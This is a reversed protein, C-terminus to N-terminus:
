CPGWAALLKLFDTIGTSCDGDLDAAPGGWAALMYLFDLIGVVRDGDFDPPCLPVFVFDSLVVEVEQGDGPANGGILWLNVHVRPAEPRPIDPGTYTWTEILDGPDPEDAHGTWSRCVVADPRWDFVHTTPSEPGDTTLEFRHRNGDRWYPQFVFQAPPGNPETWRSFEIDFENNANWWNDPRWCPQYEWVFLGFVVNPDLDDLDAEVKFRYEGYGLAEEAAVEAAYWVGDVQTTRLRLKGDGDVRANDRSDSFHNPGPGFFGPGKVRWTRGAFLLTTEGFDTWQLDDWGPPETRHIDVLDFIATGTELAPSQLFGVLFRATATGGPAPGTEFEFRQLCDTPSSPGVLDFSEYAILGEGADRWEVNLIARAQGVIPDSAPHAAHAVVRFRDGPAAEFPQWYGSVDWGGTDPGAATASRGGHETLASTVGVQGFGCWGALVQGPEDGPIDFSPNEVLCWADCTVAGAHHTLVLAAVSVISLLCILKPRNMPKRM